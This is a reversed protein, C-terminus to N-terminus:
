SPSSSGLFTLCVRALNRTVIVESGWQKRGEWWRDYSANNRFGLFLSVAVGLATFPTFKFLAEDESQPSVYAAVFGVFAACLIKPLIAGVISGHTAFTKNLFSPHPRVIM